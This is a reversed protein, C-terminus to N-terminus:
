CSLTAPDDGFLLRAARQTASADYQTLGPTYWRVAVTAAAGGQPTGHGTASATVPNVPVAVPTDDPSLHFGPSSTPDSGSAAVLRPKALGLATLEDQLRLRSACRGVAYWGHDAKGCFACEHRFKCRGDGFLCKEYPEGTKSRGNHKMCLDKKGNASAGSAVTDPSANGDGNGNGTSNSNGRGRNSGNGNGGTPRSRSWVYYAAFAGAPIPISKGSWQHRQKDILEPNALAFAIVQLHAITSHYQLRHLAAELEAKDNASVLSAFVHPVPNMGAGSSSMPRPISDVHHGTSTISSGHPNNNSADLM